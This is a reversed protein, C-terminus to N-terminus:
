FLSPIPIHTYPYIPIHTYPYIPIPKIPLYINYTTHQAGYGYRTSIGPPPPLSALLTEVADHVVARDSGDLNAGDRGDRMDRGTSGAGGHGVHGGNGVDRGNGGNGANGNGRKGASGGSGGSGGYGGGGSGGLGGHAGKFKGTSGTNGKGGSGPKLESKRAAEPQKGYCDQLSQLVAARSSARELAAGYESM